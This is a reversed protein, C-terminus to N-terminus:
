RKRKLHYFSILNEIKFGWFDKEVGFIHNMKWVNKKTLVNQRLKWKIKLEEWCGVHLLWSFTLTLLYKTKNKHWCFIMLEPFLHSFFYSRIQNNWIGSQVALHYWKMALEHTSSKSIIWLSESFWVKFDVLHYVWSKKRMKRSSRGCM